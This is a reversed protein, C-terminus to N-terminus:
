DRTEKRDRELGWEDLYKKEIDMGSGRLRDKNTKSGLAIGYSHYAYFIGVFSLSVIIITLTLM